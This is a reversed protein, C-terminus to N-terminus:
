SPPSPPRDPHRKALVADSIVIGLLVLTPGVAVALPPLFIMAPSIGALSLAGIVRSHSMRGYIAHGFLFRGTLYLVPGGIVASIRAPDTHGLPQEIVLEFGADTVVIGAVMIVHTILAVRALRAPTHAAQIAAPLLAAAQFLYTRWLLVTTVFSVFFAAVAGPSSVHAGDAVGSVAILEGLAITVFQRYREGLHEPDVPWRSVLAVRFNWPAAFVMIFATYEIAVALAWLAARVDGETLTAGVLWPVASVVFWLLVGLSRRQAQHGRLAFILILGRGIHIGVYTGAFALGGSGFADPLTVALLLTGFMTGAFIVQIEPQQPDYVHTVPAMVFWLMLLALLLLLAESARVSPQESTIGELLVGSLQTLAFVFVLDFFLELYSIGLPRGPKRFM